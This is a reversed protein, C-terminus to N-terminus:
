APRIRLEDGVGVALRIAANGHSVALALRRYADEYVLLGGAPVDAFTRAYQATAKDGTPTQLVVARGLRLGAAALHEHGADLAANGFRDVHVVHALLTGDHVAPQPLELAVLEDPDLPEGAEALSAGGALRAAVPAFIDRGHFTASVPELRFPSRAIDVAEVVGGAQEAALWLLGNDPGVLRREDALRLAVARREAGVDPDVVALHVGVPLYPLAGALTIAGALADHRRVGHTLDIIRAEPCLRAMVGHCIGVFDDQLGYDSLFTIVPLSEAM